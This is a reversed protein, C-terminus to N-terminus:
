NLFNAPLSEEVLICIAHYLVIHIEQIKHTEQAPVPIILDINMPLNAIAKEGALAVTKMGLNM